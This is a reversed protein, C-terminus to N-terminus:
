CAAITNTVVVVGGVPIPPVSVLFVLYRRGQEMLKGILAWRQYCSAISNMDQSIRRVAPWWRLETMCFGPHRDMCLVRRSLRFLHRGPEPDQALYNKATREKLREGPFLLYLRM